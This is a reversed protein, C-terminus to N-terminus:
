CVKCGAFSDFNSTLRTNEKVKAPNVHCSLSGDVWGRSKNHSKTRLEVIIFTFFWFVKDDTLALATCFLFM